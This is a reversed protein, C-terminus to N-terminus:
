QIYIIKALMASGFGGGPSSYSLSFTYTGIPVNAALFKATATRGIM